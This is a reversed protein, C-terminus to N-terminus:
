TTTRTSLVTFPARVGASHAEAAQLALQVREHADRSETAYLVGKAYSAGCGCADYGCAAEGVQYDSEILFLRGRYGVLFAGGIEAEEDKRAFGGAKFRTRIAEVFECVMYEMPDVGPKHFPATFGFRLLQIMRFSTTCGIVMEGVRFVKADKRVTM